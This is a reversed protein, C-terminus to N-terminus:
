ECTRQRDSNTEQVLAIRQGALGTLYGRVKWSRSDGVLRNHYQYFKWRCRRSIAATGAIDRCCEFREFRGVRDKLLELENSLTKKKSRRTILPVHLRTINVFVRLELAQIVISILNQWREYCASFRHISDCFNSRRIRNAREACARSNETLLRCDAAVRMRLCVRFDRWPHKKSKM